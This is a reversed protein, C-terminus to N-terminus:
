FPYGRKWTFPGTSVASFVAHFHELEHFDIVTDLDESLIVPDELVTRLLQTWGPSQICGVWPKISLHTAVYCTPGIKRTSLCGETWEALEGPAADDSIVEDPETDDQWFFERADSAWAPVEEAALSKGASVPALAEELVALEKRERLVQLKEQLEDKRSGM